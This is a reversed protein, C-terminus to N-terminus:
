KCLHRISNQWPQKYFKTTITTSQIQNTSTGIGLITYTAIEVHTHEKKVQDMSLAVYANEEESADLYEILANKVLDEWTWEGLAIKELHKSQLRPVGNEVIILPRRVRGEDCNVHLEEAEAQAKTFLL